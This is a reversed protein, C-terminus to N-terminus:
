YCEKFPMWDMLEVKDKILATKDLDQDSCAFLLEWKLLLERAQKQESEPWEQLGQLDLAELVWGKQTKHNSEKSTIAPHVVPQVQNAPAIQGVVAKSPIEMTHASLNCLFIPVRSSGLHLERYTVMPVVAALLQPGPVPEMLVHAQMCHGKVSSNVHVSVTGFLPITVKQTTCVPGRINNLCFKRVEVPDSSQSPHSVQEEVGSKNLSMCSLQLLGSMVAGFHAQRWTMTAKTLEGKTMLSLTKDIIKSGIMFPVMKSYTTTPIVLLLVNENYNTIGPIQLKVEMFGLYPIASGGTGELELLWGLPQIQLALEECFQSSVSSVQAGSDILATTEQGDIIVLAENSHGM